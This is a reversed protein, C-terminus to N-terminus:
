QTKKHKKTNTKMYFFDYSMTAFYCQSFYLTLYKDSQKELEVM